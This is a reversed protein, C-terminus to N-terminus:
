QALEADADSFAEEFFFEEGFAAAAMIVLGNGFVLAFLAVGLDQCGDM